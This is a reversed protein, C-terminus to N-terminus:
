VLASALAFGAGAAGACALAARSARRRLRNAGVAARTRVVLVGGALRQGLPIGPAWLVAARLRCEWSDVMREAERRAARRHWALRSRRRRWYELAEIADPVHVPEYRGVHM